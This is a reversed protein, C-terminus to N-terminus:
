NYQECECGCLDKRTSPLNQREIAICHRVLDIAEDLRGAHRHCSALQGVVITFVGALM